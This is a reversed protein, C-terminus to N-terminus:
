RGALAAVIPAFSEPERVVYHSIGLSERLSQLKEVLQNVAGFLLFPTSAVVDRSLNLRRASQDLAADSGDGIVSRQVLVSREIAADRDGAAEALWRARRAVTELSFGRPQPTGEDSHTLGTFQFIDAFRAAVGILRRGHGGVLVPVHAQVPRVGLDSIALRHHAGQAEVSGDDLLRRLASLSEALRDVRQAPPRLEINTADHESRAYGTGIGLIIRGGTMRDATAVTRALLAPHHLENNLVLPGVRVTSTAEAAVILPVFPDVAGLHDYSYLEEYGLDEARRASSAVTGRDALNMAQLAFRFPRIVV